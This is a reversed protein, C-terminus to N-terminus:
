PAETRPPSIFFVDTHVQVSFAADCHDCHVEVDGGGSRISEVISETPDDVQDSTEGCVPCRVRRAHLYEEDPYSQADTM